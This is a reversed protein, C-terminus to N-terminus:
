PSRISTSITARILGSCLKFRQVRKFSLNRTICIGGAINQSHSTSDKTPDPQRQERQRGSTSICQLPTSTMVHGLRWKGPSLRVSVYLGPAAKENKLSAPPHCRHSKEPIAKAALMAMTTQSCLNGLSSRNVAHENANTSPPATPLRQSRRAGDRPMTTSKISTYAPLHCQGAKLTASEAITRPTMMM